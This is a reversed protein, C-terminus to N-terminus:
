KTRANTASASPAPRYPASIAQRCIERLQESPLTPLMQRGGVLLLYLHKARFEAEEPDCGAQRWLSGAYELRVSDLREQVLRVEYDQMAWARVAAQLGSQPSSDIALDILRELKFVPDQSVSADVSAILSTTSISEFRVLLDARFSALNKFHHYFSGKTLGLDAALADITLHSFGRESLVRFAAELWQEKDAVVLGYWVTHNPDSWV